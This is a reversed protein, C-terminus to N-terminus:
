HFKSHGTKRFTLKDKDLAQLGFVGVIELCLVKTVIKLIKGEEESHVSNNCRQAKQYLYSSLTKDSSGYQVNLSEKCLNLDYETACRMVHKELRDQFKKEKCQQRPRM